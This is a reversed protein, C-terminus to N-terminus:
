NQIREAECVTSLENFIFKIFALASLYKQYVDDVTYSISYTAYDAHALLNRTRILAVFNTEGESMDEMRRIKERVKNKTDDGFHKLFSDINKTDSSVPFLNFFKRDMMKDYFACFRQDSCRSQFLQRLSEMVYCEFRSASAIILSKPLHTGIILKADLEEVKTCVADLKKVDNYLMEISVGDIVVDMEEM